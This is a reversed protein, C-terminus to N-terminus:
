PIKERYTAIILCVLAKGGSRGAPDPLCFDSVSQVDASTQRLLKIM